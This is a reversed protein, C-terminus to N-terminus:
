DHLTWANHLALSAEYTRDYQDGKTFVRCFTTVLHEHLSDQNESSFLLRASEEIRDRFDAGTAHDPTTSLLSAIFREDPMKIERLSGIQNWVAGFVDIKESLTTPPMM